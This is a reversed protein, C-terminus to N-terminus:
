VVRGEQVDREETNVKSNTVEANRVIRGEKVEREDIKVKTNIVKANKVEGRM